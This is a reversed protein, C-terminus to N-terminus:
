QSKSKTNRSARRLHQAAYTNHPTPTTHRLRQTVFTNHPTPTALVSPCQSKLIKPLGGSKAKAGVGAEKTEFGITDM